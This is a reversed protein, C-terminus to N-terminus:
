DKIVKYGSANIAEYLFGSFVSVFKENASLDNECMADLICHVLEHWFTQEKSADSQEQEENNCMYKKAIHIYSQALCCVGLNTGLKEVIEVTIEQGAIQISNPINISKNEM